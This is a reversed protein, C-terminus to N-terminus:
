PGFLFDGPNYYQIEIKYGAGLRKRLFAQRRLAAVRGTVTNPKIEIIRKTIPNFVDVRFGKFGPITAEKLWNPDLSMLRKQISKHAAQGIKAFFRLGTTRGM